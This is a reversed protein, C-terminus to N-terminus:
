IDPKLSITQKYAAISEDLLGKEFLARGLHNYYFPNASNIAIARSLLEIAADFKKEQLM